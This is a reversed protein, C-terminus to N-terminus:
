LGDADVPRRVGGRGGLGLGAREVDDLLALAGEFLQLRLLEPARDLPGDGTQAGLVSGAYHETVDLAPGVLLDGGGQVEGEARDLGVDVARPVLEAPRQLM